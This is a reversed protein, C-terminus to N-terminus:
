GSRRESFDNSISWVMVVLWAVVARTQPDWTKVVSWWGAHYAIYVFTFLLILSVVGTFRM